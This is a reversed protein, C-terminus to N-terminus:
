TRKKGSAHSHCKFCNTELVPRAKNFIGDDEAAFALIYSASADLQLPWSVVSLTDRGTQSVDGLAAAPVPVPQAMAAGSLLAGLALARIPM